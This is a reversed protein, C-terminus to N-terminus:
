WDKMDQLVSLIETQLFRETLHLVNYGKDEVYKGYIMGAVVILTFGKMNSVGIREAYNDISEKVIAQGKPTANPDPIIGINEYVPQGDFYLVYSISNKLNSTHDKYGKNDKSYTVAEEGVQQLAQALTFIIKEYKHTLKEQLQEIGNADLSFKVAM